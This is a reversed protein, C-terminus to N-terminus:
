LLISDPSLFFAPSLLFEPRPIGPVTSPCKEKSGRM